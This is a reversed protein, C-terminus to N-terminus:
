TLPEQMPTAARRESAAAGEEVDQTLSGDGSPPHRRRGCTEIYLQEQRAAIHDWGFSQAWRRGLKGMARCREPDALLANLAAAYADTDFAPVLIAADSPLLSRFAPLDFAVVPTGCALAELAVLGFTEYRSPCCVIQASALLEFRETGHVAGLQLVRHAVGLKEALSTVDARDLGEGVIRLSTDSGDAIVSFAELLLDLGKGKLELRGLCVLGHRRHPRLDWVADDVGNPMVVVHASPNITHLREAITPSVTVMVKHTRAGWREALYFPLHYQQSKERAWLWQVQAVVPRRTWLPALCSGFPAVFDEVVLDSRHKWIVFPMAAFYTLISGFYGLWRGAQVYRVGDEIRERCGPYTVTVATVEHRQALRRNIEHNRIAGGGSGPRHLDDFALHLIRLGRGHAHSASESRRRGRRRTRAPRWVGLAALALAAAGMATPVPTM